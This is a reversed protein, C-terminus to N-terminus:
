EETARAIGELLVMHVLLYAGDPLAAPYDPFLERTCHVESNAGPVIIRPALRAVVHQNQVISVEMLCPRMELAGPLANPNGTLEYIAEPPVVHVRPDRVPTARYYASRLLSM